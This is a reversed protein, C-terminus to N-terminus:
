VAGESTETPADRREWVSRGSYPNDPVNCTCVAYTRDGEKITTLPMHHVPCDVTEAPINTKDSKM